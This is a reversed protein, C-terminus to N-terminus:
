RTRQINSHKINAPSNLSPLTYTKSCNEKVKSCTIKSDFPMKSLNTAQHQNSSYSTSITDSIYGQKNSQRRTQRINCEALVYM